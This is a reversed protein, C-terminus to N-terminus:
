LVPRPKGPEGTGVVQADELEDMLRAARPYGIRLRRQLLSVSLTRHAAAMDRARDFLSDGENGAGAFGGAEDDRVPELQPLRPGDVGRWFDVVSQVESDTLFAGQIRMPKPRDIPLFLMDGKGLLKEAGPSDIITRSDIQSTVSFSIRSPFNAKILGTVVDVSPRQTAVILHIGVARGLQALRCLLREVEAAATLMLDALEDVMILLYPMRTAARQNYAAINRVGEAELLKFRILMEDVAAKLIGVADAPEVIPPAALHPIGAYPTLEVRKPDIMVIRVEDPRRTMLLGTAVANMCVSKGSGTAGAVLVHPMRTIDMVVIEGGNGIGLPVPLLADEVFKEFTDTEMVSRLTVVQPRTNPVEIGVLSAGPVPAEFRLNPSALALALDKERSLITDVRVRTRNDVAPAGNSGEPAAPAARRGRGWGPVLGYMTVRPGIRVEGVSVEVGHQGLTDVLLESTADIEAQPVAGPPATKLMGISPLPWAFQPIQLFPPLVPVPPGDAAEEEEAEGAVPAVADGAPALEDDDASRAAADAGAGELTLELTEVGTLPAEVPGAAYSPNELMEAETGVATAAAAIEEATALEAARREARGARWGALRTWAAIAAAAALAYVTALGGGIAKALNLAQRPWALAAGVLVLVAVRLSALTKEPSTGGLEEDWKRPWRAIANGISGGASQNFVQHDQRDTPTQPIGLAGAAAFALVLLALALRWRALLRRPFRNLAFLVVVAWAGLPAASWGLQYQADDFLFYILAAAALALMAVRGYPNLALRRVLGSLIALVAGRM